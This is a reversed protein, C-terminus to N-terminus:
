QEEKVQEWSIGSEAAYTEMRDDIMSRIEFHEFMDELDKLHEYVHFPLMVAEMHNNKLIFLPEGSDSLERVKKTLEKQLKTIPIMQKSELLM